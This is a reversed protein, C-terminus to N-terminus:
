QFFDKTPSEFRNRTVREVWERNTSVQEREPPSDEDRGWRIFQLGLIRPQCCLGSLCLRTPPRFLRRRPRQHENRRILIRADAATRCGNIISPFFLSIRQEIQRLPCGVSTLQRERILPHCFSHTLIRIM